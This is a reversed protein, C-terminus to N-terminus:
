QKTPPTSGETVMVPNEAIGEPVAVQDNALQGYLFTPILGFIACFVIVAKWDMDSIRLRRHLGSGRGVVLALVAVVTTGLWILFSEM